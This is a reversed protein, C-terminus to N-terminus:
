ELIWDREDYRLGCKKIWTELQVRNHSYNNETYRMRADFVQILFKCRVVSEQPRSPELHEVPEGDEDQSRPEEYGSAKEDEAEVYTPSVTPGLCRTQADPSHLEM